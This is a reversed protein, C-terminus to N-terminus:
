FLSALWQNWNDEPAMVMFWIILIHVMHHVMQDAGLSNWFSKQRADNYRGFFRNSAKMRDIVFHSVFDFVALWWFMPTFIM